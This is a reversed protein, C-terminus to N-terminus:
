KQNRNKKKAADVIQGFLNDGFNFIGFVDGVPESSASDKPAPKAQKRGQWKPTSPEPMDELLDYANNLAKFKEEADPDQNKDPHYKLSLKRYARKVEESSAGPKLGLVYYAQTSNM